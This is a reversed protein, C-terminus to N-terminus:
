KAALARRGLSTRGLEAQVAAKHAAADESGASPLPVPAPLGATGPNRQTLQTQLESVKGNAATLDAKLKEGHALKADTITAKVKLQGLIFSEDGPFAAELEEITAPAPKAALVAKNVETSILGKAAEQLDEPHQSAHAIFEERTMDQEQQLFTEADVEDIVRDILGLQFAQDASFMEGNAIAKVADQSLGRNTAIANVFDAACRDIDRQNYDILEQSIRGDEGAGKLGGSDILIYNFGDKEDAKSTDLLLTYAGISGVQGTRNLVVTDCCTALWLAGSAAWDSVKAISPKELRSLVTTLMEMGAYTGGPSYIELMIRSVMPDRDALRIVEALEMMSTGGYSSKGKTMMGDVPIVAVDGVIEYTLPCSDADEVEPVYLGSKIVSFM